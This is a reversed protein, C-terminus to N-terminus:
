FRFIFQIKMKHDCQFGEYLFFRSSTVRSKERWNDDPHSFGDNCQRVRFFETKSIKEQFIKHHLLVIHFWVASHHIMNNTFGMCLCCTMECLNNIIAGVFSMYGVISVNSINLLMSIMCCCCYRDIQQSLPKLHHPKFLWLITVTYLEVSLMVTRPHPDSFIQTAICNRCYHM